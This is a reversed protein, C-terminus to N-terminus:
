QRNRPIHQPRRNIREYLGTAVSLASIGITPERVTVLDMLAHHSPSVVDISVTRNLGFRKKPPPPKERDAVMVVGFLTVAGGLVTLSSPVQGLWIWAIIFAIIPVLYLFGAAYSVPLRALVFAWTAYAIATPGIGLYIVSLTAETSASLVAHVMGPLFVLQFLTGTLVIWPMLELAAYRALLHKQGTFYLSWVVGAGLALGAGPEFQLSNSEGFGVVIAGILTIAIGLWGLFQLRERLFLVGLLATFLPSTNALTGAAGASITVQGHAILYHYLASGIFGLFAIAPLDAPEPTRIPRLVTISLLVVCAVSYRLLGMQGPTYSELAADIGPFSSSWFVVTIATALILTVPM